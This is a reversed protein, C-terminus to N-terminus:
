LILYSCLDSSGRSSHTDTVPEGLGEGEGGGKVDALMKQPHRLNESTVRFISGAVRHVWRPTSSISGYGVWKGMGLELPGQLLSKLCHGLQYQSEAWTVLTFVLAM